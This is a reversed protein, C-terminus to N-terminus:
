VRELYDTKDNREINKKIENLLEEGCLTIRIVEEDSFKGSQVLAKAVQKSFKWFQDASDFEGAQYGERFGDDFANDHVSEIYEKFTSDMYDQFDSDSLDYDKQWEIYDDYSEDSLFGEKIMEAFKDTFCSSDAFVVGLKEENAECYGDTIRPILMMSNFAEVGLRMRLTYFGRLKHKNGSKVEVLYIKNDFRILVDIERTGVHNNGVPIHVLVNRYLEYDVGYAESLEKLVENAELFAFDEFFGGTIYSFFIKNDIFSGTVTNSEKNLSYDGILGLTKFDELLSIVRFRNEEKISDLEVQFKNGIIIQSRLAILLDYFVSFNVSIYKSLGFMSKDTGKRNGQSLLMAKEAFMSNLLSYKSPNECIEHIYGYVVKEDAGTVNIIKILSKSVNAM